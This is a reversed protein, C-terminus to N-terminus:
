RCPSPGWGAVATRSSYRTGPNSGLRRRLPRFPPSSFWRCPRRRRRPSGRPAPAIDAADAVLYEAFTGVRDIAPRGFVADGVSCQSVGPGVQTIVGAFEQGMVQPLRYSLLGKFQGGAIM